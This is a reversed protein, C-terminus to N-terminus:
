RAAQNYIVVNAPCHMGDFFERHFLKAAAGDVNYRIVVPSGDPLKTTKKM